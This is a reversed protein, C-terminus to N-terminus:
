RKEEKEEKEESLLEQPGLPPCQRATLFNKWLNPKKASRALDTLYTVALTEPFKGKRSDSKHFRWM